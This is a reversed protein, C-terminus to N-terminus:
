LWLLLASDMHSLKFPYSDALILKSLILLGKIYYVFHRSYLFFFFRNNMSLFWCFVVQFLFLYDASTLGLINSNDSLLKLAIGM